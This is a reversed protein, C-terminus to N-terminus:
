HLSVSCIYIQWRLWNQFHRKIKFYKFVFDSLGQLLILRLLQLIHQQFHCHLHLVLSIHQQHHALICEPWLGLLLNILCTLHLSQTEFPISIDESCTM